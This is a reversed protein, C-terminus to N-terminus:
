VVAAASKVGGVCQCAVAVALSSCCAAPTGPVLPVAAAVPRTPLILGSRQRVSLGWWACRRPSSSCSLAGRVKKRIINHRRIRRAASSAGEAQVLLGVRGTAAQSSRVRLPAVSATQEGLRLGAFSGLLAMDVRRALPLPAHRPVARSSEVAEGSPKHSEAAHRERHCARLMDPRAVGLLCILVARRLWRM